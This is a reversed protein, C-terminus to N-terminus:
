ASLKEILAAHHTAAEVLLQAAMVDTPSTQYFRYIADEMHRRAAFFAAM